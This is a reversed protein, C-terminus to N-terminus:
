SKSEGQAAWETVWNPVAEVRLQALEAPLAAFSDKFRSRFELVLDTPVSDGVAKGNVSYYVQRLAAKLAPTRNLLPELERALRLSVKQLMPNRYDVSKNTTPVSFDAFPERAIRLWNALDQLVVMPKLSYDDHFVVYVNEPGLKRRWARIHEAYLTERLALFHMDRGSEPGRQFVEECRALYNELTVREGVAVKNRYHLYVSFFRSVPERLTIVVRPSSLIERMPDAILEAGSFYAPSAEIVVPEGRFGSFESAYVSIPSLERARLLPNFFNVEKRSSVCIEPHRSLVSFLSTTGTRGPGVM